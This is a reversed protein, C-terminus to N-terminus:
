SGPPIMTPATKRAPSLALSVLTAVAETNVIEDKDTFDDYGASAGVVMMGVLM